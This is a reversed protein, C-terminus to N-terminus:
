LLDPNVAINTQPKYSVPKLTRVAQNGSRIVQYMREPNDLFVSELDSIRTDSRVSAAQSAALRVNRAANLQAGTVFEDAPMPLGPVAVAPDIARPGATIVNPAGQIRPTAAIVKRYSHAATQIYTGIGAVASVVGLGASVYGLIDGTGSDPSLASTVGSAIGTVGSAIGVVLSAQASTSMAAWAAAIGTGAATAAAGLTAVSVVIGVASLGIGIFPMLWRPLHGDPDLYNVPDGLCYAYPNVGGRDFPSLSDPGHFRMLVPNYARYGQGLLYWGTSPERLEGNFASLGPGAFHGYATYDLPTVKDTDAEAMVTNKADTVLLSTSATTGGQREALLTDFSRIFTRPQSGQLRNVLQGERYFRQEQVGAESARILSDQADYGYDVVPSGDNASVALLRGLADYTLARGAEDLILNGDADYDFELRAPYDTHSNSVASLQNPDQGAYEYLATNHGGPFVTEVSLLNDFADFRFTQSQVQKGQPDLPMRPGTATYLELRGRSDYAFTEDRLLTSGESLTRRELHSAADYAQTLTQTDGGPLIFSRVVERGIDDYELAVGLNQNGEVTDIRDLLGQVNYGFTSTLSDAHLKELRGMADYACTQTQGLVDTYGLLRGKLSYRYQMAYVEGALLRREERIEGTSYYDRELEQDQEKSSLLRANQPDYTYDATSSSIKRQVPQEGLPPLYVYDITEGAPTHVKGPQLQPGVYEYRSARGGTISGTMRKLGDFAQEGVVVGNVAISVPLDERSHLACTREILADDPLRSSLLRDFADYAFERDNGLADVQGFTRGLGDYVTTELSIRSGDLALREISEPKDFLNNVTVTKGMGAQWETTTRKVPDEVKHREILDPGTVSRQAGWDDYQYTSKLPLDDQELWDLEIEEILQGLTDYTATYTQRLGPDQSGSDADERREEVVRNLGDLLTRTKVGKVDTVEQEAQQGDVASLVYRYHRTAEY